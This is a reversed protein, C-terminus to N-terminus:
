AASPEPWELDIAGQAEALLNSVDLRCRVDAHFGVFRTHHKVWRVATDRQGSYREVLCAATLSADRPASKPLNVAVLSERLWGQLWGTVGLMPTVIGNHRSVGSLMDIWLTGSGLSTLTPADSTLHMLSFHGLLDRAMRDLHDQLGALDTM